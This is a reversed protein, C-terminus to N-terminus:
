LTEGVEIKQLYSFKKLDIPAAICCTSGLLFYGLEDGCRVTSGIGLGDTLKINGVGMGGVFSLFWSRNKTDVIELVYRENVFSPASVSKRDYFWPRLFNLHGSINRVSQITGSVPSHFRHYNHNHLFINVFTYTDKIKNSADDFINKITFKRGKVVVESLESVLGNECVFGQCPAIVADRSYYSTNKLKRTFFDQFSLYHEGGSAPKYLNMQLQDLDYRHCFPAIFWASIKWRYIKSWILSLQKQAPAPLRNWVTTAFYKNAATALKM